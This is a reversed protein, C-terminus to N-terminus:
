NQLATKIKELDKDSLGINKNDELAHRVLVDDSLGKLEPNDLIEKSERLEKAAKRIFEQAKDKQKLDDPTFNITVKNQINNKVNAADRGVIERLQGRKDKGKPGNLIGDDDIDANLARPDFKKFQALVSTPPKGSGAPAPIIPAALPAKLAFKGLGKGYNEIPQTFKGILEDKNLIAFTETWLVFIALFMWLLEWFDQVSALLPIFTNLKSFGPPPRVNAGANILIFGITMPIAVLTPLFAASLFRKWIKKITDMEGMKDGIVFGLFALPMFAMTIWLVPIRIFFAVVMALLPFFLAIHILLVLLMRMLFTIMERVEGVQGAPPDPQQINALVRLHAHNIILGNIISSSTWAQPNNNFSKQEYCVLDKLPCVWGTVGETEGTIEEVNRTQELFKVETIVMCDKKEMDGTTKNKKMITCEVANPGNRFTGPIQYITYTLVQSVDLIVRPVFWSFNVLVVALIFKVRYNKVTETNAKVITIIAGVVLLVAFIINVLDRMLQWIEHLMVLLPGDGGNQGTGVDLIFVPNLLIDLLQFLIWMILNMGTIILGVAYSVMGMFDESATDAALAHPLGLLGDLGMRQIAFGIFFLLPIQLLYKTKFM